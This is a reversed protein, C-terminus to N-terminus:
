TRGTRGTRGKLLVLANEPPSRKGSTRGLGGSSLPGQEGAVYGFGGVGQYSRWDLGEVPGAFRPRGDARGNAQGGKGSVTGIRSPEKRDGISEPELPDERGAFGDQGIDAQYETGNSFEMSQGSAFDLLHEGKTWVFDVLGLEGVRGPAVAHRCAPGRVGGGM